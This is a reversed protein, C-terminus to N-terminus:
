RLLSVQIEQHIRSRMEKELISEMSFSTGTLPEPNLRLLVIM